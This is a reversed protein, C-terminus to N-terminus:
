KNRGLQDRKFILGRYTWSNSWIRSPLWNQCNLNAFVPNLRGQDSNTPRGSETGTKVDKIRIFVRGCGLIVREYQLLKMIKSRSVIM